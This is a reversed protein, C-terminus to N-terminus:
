VEEDSNSELIKRDRVDSYFSYRGCDSEGEFCHCDLKVSDVATAECRFCRVGDVLDREGHHRALLAESVRQVEKKAAKLAQEARQVALRAQSLSTM